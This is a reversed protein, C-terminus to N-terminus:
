REHNQTTQLAMLLQNEEDELKKNVGSVDNAM